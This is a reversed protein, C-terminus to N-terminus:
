EIIIKQKFTKDGSNIKLIYIGKPLFSFDYIDDTTPTQSAFLQKGTIDLVEINEPKEKRNWQMKFIGNGPNPMIQFESVEEAIQPVAVTAGLEVATIYLPNGYFSYTEFAVRVDTQGAWDNLSL